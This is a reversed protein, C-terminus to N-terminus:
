RVSQHLTGNTAEPISLVRCFRLTLRKWRIKRGAVCYGSLCVSLSSRLRRCCCCATPFMGAVMPLWRCFKSVWLDSSRRTPFSHLDRLDSYCPLILSLHRPLPLSLPYLPSTTP